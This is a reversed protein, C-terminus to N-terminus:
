STVPRVVPKISADPEAVAYLRWKGPVGRLTTVGREDFALGSGAVLDKVTQSVLVEGPQAQAAVRAGVHVAIGRVSDDALEVEGTHVGARVQLGLERMAQAIARACRVARAPGDFTAFIGDGTTNVERGRFRGLYARALTNHRELLEGWARDGIEAAKATSGVVDTFLVTTLVRDPEAEDRIQKLFREIEDVVPEQDGEWPLHENGTLAVLRAAPIQEGMSRTEDKLYEHERYVVLTPVGISPLVPRVDIEYNMLWLQRAAGPSAGRMVWSVYWALSAEDEALSPVTRAVWQRAVGEPWAKDYLELRQRVLEETIGQPYDPAWRMRAFTGLLVLAATREPYTAAFLACMPGGESIGLLVARQSGVADLVARVDDMREELPAIGAVRDSLGTGRKDFLVLRGMSALRRYFRALQPREWGVHFTCVWGHVLVLDLPGGDGLVQYAISVDGSKAYHTRQAEV